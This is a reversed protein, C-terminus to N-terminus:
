PSTSGGNDSTDEHSEKGVIMAYDALIGEIEFAFSERHGSIDAGITLLIAAMKKVYSSELAAQYGAHFGCARGAEWTPLYEPLCKANMSKIHPEQSHKHSVKLLIVDRQEKSKQPSM